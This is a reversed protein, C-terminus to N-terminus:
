VPPPRTKSTRSPTKGSAGSPAASMFDARSLVEELERAAKLYEEETMLGRRYRTEYGQLALCATAPSIERIDGGRLPGYEGDLLAAKSSPCRSALSRERSFGGVSESARTPVLHRFDPATSEHGSITSLSGITAPKVALMLASRATSPMPPHLRGFIVTKGAPVVVNTSVLTSGRRTLRVSLEVTSDGRIDTAELSLTFPAQDGPRELEVTVGMGEIATSHGVNLLQFGRFRSVEDLAEAVATLRRDVPGDLTAQFLQFDVIAALPEHRVWEHPSDPHDAQTSVTAQEVGRATSRRAPQPTTSAARPPRARSDPEAVAVYQITSDVRESDRDCAALLLVIALGTVRHTIM